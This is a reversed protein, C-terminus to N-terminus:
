LPAGTQNARVGACNVVRGPWRRFFTMTTRRPVRRPESPGKSPCASGDFTRRRKEPGVWRCCLENRQDSSAALDGDDDVALGVDVYM